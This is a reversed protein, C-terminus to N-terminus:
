GPCREAEQVVRSGGNNGDDGDDGYDVDHNQEKRLQGNVKWDAKTM